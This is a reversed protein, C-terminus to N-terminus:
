LMLPLLKVALPLLGQFASTLGQMMQLGAGQGSPKQGPVQKELLDAAATVQQATANDGQQDYLAAAYRFDAVALANKGQEHRAIGRALWTLAAEPRQEIAQGFLREAEPPNGAQAAEVGANHLQPYSLGGAQIGRAEQWHARALAAPDLRAGSLDSQRLDTGELRAGRLDAGRLSAGQLSTFSLDAGQLNARDLVAGSLNARQLQARRLDADRLEAHVLDAEQLKCGPCRGNVLLRELAAQGSPPAASAAATSRTLGPHLSLAGGLGLVLGWPRRRQAAPRPYRAATNGEAM